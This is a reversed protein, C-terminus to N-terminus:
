AAFYLVHTKVLVPFCDRITWGGPSRRLERFHKVFIWVALCLALVEWVIVLIWTEARQFQDNNEGVCWYSGSLVVEVPVRGTLMILQLGENM